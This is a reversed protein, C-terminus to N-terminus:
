KHNLVDCEINEVREGKTNKIRRFIEDEVPKIRWTKNNLFDDPNILYCNKLLM